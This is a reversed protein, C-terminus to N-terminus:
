FTYTRESKIKFLAGLLASYESWPDRFFCFVVSSRNGSSIGVQLRFM